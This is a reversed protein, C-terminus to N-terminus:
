NGSISGNISGDDYYDLTDRDEKSMSDLAHKVAWDALLTDYDDQSLSKCANPRHGKTFTSNLAKQYDAQQQAESKGCATTTRM